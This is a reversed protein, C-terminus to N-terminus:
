EGDKKKGVGCCFFAMFACGILILGIYFFILLTIVLIGLSGCGSSASWSIQFLVMFVCQGILKVSYDIVLMLNSKCCKVVIYSAITFVVLGVNFWMYIIAEDRLAECTRVKNSDSRRTFLFLLLILLLQLCMNSGYSKDVHGQLDFSQGQFQLNGDDPQNNTEVVIITTPGALEPDQQNVVNYEKLQQDSSM